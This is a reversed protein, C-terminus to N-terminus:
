HVPRQNPGSLDPNANSWAESSIALYLSDAWVEGIRYTACASGTQRFGLKEFLRLSATNRPDIDADIRTIGQDFARRITARLAEAAYGQAWRARSLIVGVENARWLGVKGIVAGDLLVAFDDAEGDGVSAITAAVWAETVAVSEHPLTSWYRMADPDSLIAHLAPVDSQEMRRLVLRETALRVDSMM